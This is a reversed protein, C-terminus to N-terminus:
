DGAAVLLPQHRGDGVEEEAVAAVDDVGVLVGVLLLADEQLADLPLQLAEVDGALLNPRRELRDGQAEAHLPRQVEAVVLRANGEEDRLQGM